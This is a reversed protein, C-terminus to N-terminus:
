RAILFRGNWRLFPPDVFSISSRRPDLFLSGELFPPARVVPRAAAPKSSPLPLLLLTPSSRLLDPRMSSFDHATARAYSRQGNPRRLVRVHTHHDGPNELACTSAVRAGCPRRALPTASPHSSAPMSYAHLLLPPARARPSLCPTRYPASLTPFNLDRRSMSTSVVHMPRAACARRPHVARYLRVRVRRAEREIGGFGVSGRGVKWSKRRTRDKANTDKRKQKRRRIEEGRRRGKIANNRRYRPSNEIRSSSDRSANHPNAM